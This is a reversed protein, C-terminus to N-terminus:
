HTVILTMSAIKNLFENAEKSVNRIAIKMMEPHNALSKKVNEAEGVEGRGPM